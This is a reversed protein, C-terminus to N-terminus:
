ASIPMLTMPTAMRRTEIPVERAPIPALSVRALFEDGFEARRKEARLESYRGGDTMRVIEAGPQLDQFAVVPRNELRSRQCGLRSIEDHPAQWRSSAQM